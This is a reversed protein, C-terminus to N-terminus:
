GDKYVSGYALTLPGKRANHVSASVVDTGFVWWIDYIFLGGLVVTGTLFSDLQVLSIANFSFSVALIDTLLASKPSDSAAYLLSPVVALPSM